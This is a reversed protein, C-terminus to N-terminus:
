CLGLDSAHSKRSKVFDQEQSIVGMRSDDQVQFYQTAVMTSDYSMGYIYM